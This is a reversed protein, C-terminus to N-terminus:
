TVRHLGLNKSEDARLKLSPPIFQRKFQTPLKRRGPWRESSDLGPKVMLSLGNKGSAKGFALRKGVVQM